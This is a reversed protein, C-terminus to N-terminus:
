HYPVVSSVDRTFDVQTPEVGVVETLVFSPQADPVGLPGSFRRLRFVRTPEVGVGEEMKRVRLETPHSRSEAFTSTAPEIGAPNVLCEHRRLGIPLPAQSLGM